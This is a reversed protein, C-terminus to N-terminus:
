VNIIIRVELQLSGSSLTSVPVMARLRPIRRRVRVRYGLFGVASESESARAAIIIPLKLNVQFYGAAGAPGRRRAAARRAVGFRFAGCVVGARPGLARHDPTYATYRDQRRRPEIAAPGEAPAQGRRPRYFPVAGSLVSQRISFQHSSTWWSFFLDCARNTKDTEFFIFCNQRWCHLACVDFPHFEYACACRDLGNFPQFM